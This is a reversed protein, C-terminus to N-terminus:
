PRARRKGTDGFSNMLYLSRARRGAKVVDMHELDRGGLRLTGGGSGALRIPFQEASHANRDFLISCCMLITDDFSTLGNGDSSKQMPDILYCFQAIHFQTTKLRIAGAAPAKGTDTLDLHLACQVGPIFESNMRSLDDNLM